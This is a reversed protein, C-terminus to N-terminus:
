HKHAHTHPKAEGPKADMEMEEHEGEGEAYIKPAGLSGAAPLKRMFRVIKWMEDDDLM